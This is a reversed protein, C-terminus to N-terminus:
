DHGSASICWRLAHCDAGEAVVELGLPNVLRSLRALQCRLNPAPAPTLHVAAWELLVDDVGQGFRDVLLRALPRSWSSLKVCGEGAHIRGDADLIPPGGAQRRRGAEDSLFAMTRRIEGGSASRLMSQVLPGEPVATVSPDVMLLAPLGTSSLVELHHADRPWQVVAVGNRSGLFALLESLESGRLGPGFWAGSRTRMAVDVSSMAM